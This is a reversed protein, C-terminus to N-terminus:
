SPRAGLRSYVGEIQPLVAATSFFGVIKERAAQGMRAAMDKDSLLRDLRDTLAAVDGPEILFGEKGDVVVEPIGGVRTSVVPIANAMAELLSMPLGEGYSPLAYILASDLLHQKEEGQIWGPLTVTKQMGAELAKDAFEDINGDGALVIELQPHRDKLMAGATLLDYSGKPKGVRGLSIVRTHGNRIDGVLEPVEVPNFISVINGNKSVTELWNKWSSSLVIVCAARDFAFRVLRKGLTGCEQQYFQDFRGSHLHLVVKVGMLYSPAVFVLKRWFSAKSSVHVHAIGVSGSLLLRLYQIFASAAVGLKAFRDGDCHTPIYRIQWRDLLGATRYVNIVSSIGGMADFRTGLMVIKKATRYTM